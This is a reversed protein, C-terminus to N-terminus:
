KTDAWKGRGCNVIYDDIANAAAEAAERASTSQEYPERFERPWDSHFFLKAGSHIGLLEEVDPSSNNLFRFEQETEGVFLFHAWGGICATTGCESNLWPSGKYGTMTKFVKAWFSMQFKHPFTLIHNRVQLLRDVKIGCDEPCQPRPRTILPRDLLEALEPCACLAPQSATDRDILQQFEDGTVPSVTETQPQTQM